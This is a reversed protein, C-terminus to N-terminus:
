AGYGGEVTRRTVLFQMGNKLEVPTDAAIERQDPGSELRVVANAAPVGVLDAIEAGTMVPKVKEPNDFKRRNVFIHLQAQDPKGREHQQTTQTM